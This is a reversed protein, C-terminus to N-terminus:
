ASEVLPDIDHHFIDSLVEPTLGAPSDHYHVTRALCAVKDCGAAIARLDHSVIIVTLQYEDHLENILAAFQRQGKVDIGVTPEDLVLIRPGPALARAIFVRQQQGGSLAGIPRDAFESVGTQAMLQEVRDLDDKTHRGFLGTKGCLGMRIAQRVSVPFRPEFAHKQPVYGVLDGRHCVQRPPMGLVHVSGSYGQLLGLIIKLLTTKGGGNPGIVGLKCGQDVHLTVDRLAEIEGYCFSLNDVCLADSEDRHQALDSHCHSACDHDHDQANQREPPDNM